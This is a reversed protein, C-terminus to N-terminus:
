LIRHLNQEACDCCLINNEMAPVDRCSDCFSILEEGKGFAGCNSCRTIVIGDDGDEVWIHRCKM